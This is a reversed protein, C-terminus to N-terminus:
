RAALERLVADALRTRGGEAGGGSRQDRSQIPRDVSRGGSCLPSGSACRLRDRTLTLSTETTLAFAGVRDIAPLVDVFQSAAELARRGELRRIHTEDVAIVV